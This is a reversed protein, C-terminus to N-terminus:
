RATATACDDPLEARRGGRARLLRHPALDAGLPRQRAYDAEAPYLYLNLDPSEHIFVRRPAGARGASAAFEDFAQWLPRHHPRVGGLVRGLRHPRRAYGSFVPPVAPDLMEAPNCSVIRM